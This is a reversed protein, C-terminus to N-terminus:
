KTFDVGVRTPSHATVDVSVRREGLQPNKLVVEHPGAAVALNGLPTQGVDKGDVSVDAWPTANISLQGMTVPVAVKVTEGAVVRVSLSADTEFRKSTLQIHHVGSPLMIRNAATTGVLQGDEFVDLDFPAVFTAWGAAGAGSLNGTVSATEGGALKVTQRITASDNSMVVHHEGAHVASLTVPTVGSPVGDVTVHAGPPDSTISLQGSRAAAVVPFAVAQRITQGAEIPLPLTRTTGGSTVELTHAGAPLSITLPTAGRAVGDITVDGAPEAEITATGLALAHAAAVAPRPAASKRAFAVVGGVAAVAVIAAIVGLVPVRTEKRKVPTHPAEPEDVTAGEARFALLSDADDTDELHEPIDHAQLARAKSM